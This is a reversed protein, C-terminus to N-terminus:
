MFDAFTNRAQRLLAEVRPNQANYELSAIHEVRGYLYPSEQHLSMIRARTEGEVLIRLTENPLRLMQKIVAVTGLSYLDEEKPDDVLIEKQTILFVRQNTSMAREVARISKERGVDFHITMGPFVTLGRLALIPVRESTPIHSM